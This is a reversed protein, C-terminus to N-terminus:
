RAKQGKKQLVFTITTGDPSFSFSVKDMLTKLIFLGRGSEKMLNQPDLPDGLKDPDFGPGEDTVSVAVSNKGMRFVLRVKKQPNKKNGHVIANGVAETVAIALNDREDESLGMKRAVKKSLREVKPLEKICSPIVCSTEEAVRSM